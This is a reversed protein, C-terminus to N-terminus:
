PIRNVVSFSTSLKRQWSHASTWVRSVSIDAFPLVIVRFNITRALSAGFSVAFYRPCPNQSLKVFDIVREVNVDSM